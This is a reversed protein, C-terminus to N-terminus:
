EDAMMDFAVARGRWHGVNDTHLDYPSPSDYSPSNENGSHRDETRVGVHEVEYGLGEIIEKWAEDKRSTDVAPQVMVNFSAFLPKLWYQRLPSGNWPAPNNVECDYSYKLVVGGWGEHRFARSYMGSGIFHFGMGALWGEILDKGAGNNVMENVTNFIARLSTKM